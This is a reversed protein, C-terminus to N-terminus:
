LSYVFIVCILDCTLSWIDSMTVAGTHSKRKTEKQQSQQKNSTATPPTQVLWSALVVQAPPSLASSCTTRVRQQSSVGKTQTAKNLEYVNLNVLMCVSRVSQSFMWMRLMKHINHINYTCNFVMALVYLSLSVNRLKRHYMFFSLVFEVILTVIIAYFWSLIYVDWYWSWGKVFKFPM